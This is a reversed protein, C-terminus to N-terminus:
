SKEEEKKLNKNSMQCAGVRGKSGSLRAPSITFAM